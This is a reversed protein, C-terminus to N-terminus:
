VPRTARAVAEYAVVEFLLADDFREARLAALHFARGDSLRCIEILDGIQHYSGDGVLSVVAGMHVIGGKFSLRDAVRYIQHLAHNLPQLFAGKTVMQRVIKTKM